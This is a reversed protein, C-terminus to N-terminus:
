TEAEPAVQVSGAPGSQIGEFLFDGLLENGSVEPADGQFIRMGVEDLREHEYQWFGVEQWGPMNGLWPAYMQNITGSDYREAAGRGWGETYIHWQLLAPDTGYVTLLAPAFGSALATPDGPWRPM